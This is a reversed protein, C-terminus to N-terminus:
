TSDEALKQLADQYQILSDANGEERKIGILVNLVTLEEDKTLVNEKLLLVLDNKIGSFNSEDGPNQYYLSANFYCIAETNSPDIDLINKYVVVAETFEEKKYNISGKRLLNHISIDSEVMNNVFFLHEAEKKNKVEETYFTILSKVKELEVSNSISIELLTIGINRIQEKTDSSLEKIKENLHLDLKSIIEKLDLQNQQVLILSKDIESIIGKTQFISIAFIIIIISGAAAIIIKRM